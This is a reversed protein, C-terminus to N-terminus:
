RIAVAMPRERLSGSPAAWKEPAFPTADGDARRGGAAQPPCARYFRELIFYAQDNLQVM